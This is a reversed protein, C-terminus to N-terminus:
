DKLCRVSFGRQAFAGNSDGMLSVQYGVSRYYPKGSLTSTWFWSYLSINSSNGTDDINGAPLATFGTENTAGTNPSSWHIYGAEKIKGGAYDLGGLYNSLVSFESESPIHWGAPCLKGTNVAYWNYLAGYTNKYTAPDDNYWRYSPSALVIWDSPVTVNPISTNDNYKTTKLNEAMWIQTNIQVTTYVNGEIDTIPIPGSPTFTMDAGYTTALSNVAKIRYHYESGETLGTLQSSINVTTSGTAINPSGNITSGYSITTGYEFTITTSLYNPNVTGKLTATTKLINTAALTIASPAQGLTTFTLDDGYSIGLSNEGKVRFHYTTGAQLGTMNAYVNTSSAGTLTPPTASVTSGYATTIGYEFSVTTPLYNANVSGNLTASTATINTSASTVSTPKLGLTNFSLDNTYTDGLTNQAKVRFHYTTGPSLGNLSSSATMLSAGTIPNQTAAVSNGYNTSTGYEFTVQTSLYNPNIIVSLLCSTTTISTAAAASTGPTKGLTVCSLVMGYGTGNANTAFARLYYTTAPALNTVSSTFIGAGQGDSTKSDSITPTNNTSWCIGRSLITEGQDDTINGGSKVSIALIDTIANTEVIPLEKKKCSSNSFLIAILLTVVSISLLRKM